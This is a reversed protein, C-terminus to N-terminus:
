HQVRHVPHTRTALPSSVIGPVVEEEAVGAQVLPAAESNDTGVGQKPAASQKLLAALDQAREMAGAEDFTGILFAGVLLLVGMAQMAANPLKLTTGILRWVMTLM